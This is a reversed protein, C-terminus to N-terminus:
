LGGLCVDVINYLFHCNGRMMNKYSKSALVEGICYSRADWCKQM